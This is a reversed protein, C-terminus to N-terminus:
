ADPRSAEREEEALFENEEEDAVKQNQIQAPIAAFERYAVAKGRAECLEPFNKANDFAREALSEIESDVFEKLLLKWGTSDFLEEYARYYDEQEETLM